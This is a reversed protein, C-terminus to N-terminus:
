VRSPPGPGPPAGASRARGSRPCAQSAPMGEFVFEQHRKQLFCLKKFYFCSFFFLNQTNKLKKNKELNQGPGTPDNKICDSTNKLQNVAELFDKKSWVKIKWNKKPVKGNIELGWFHGFIYELNKIKKM